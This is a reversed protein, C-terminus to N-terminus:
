KASVDERRTWYFGRYKEKKGSLCKCVSSQNFGDIEVSKLSHYEACEGTLPDIRDILTKKTFDSRRKRAEKSLPSKWSWRKEKKKLKGYEKDGDHRADEAMRRSDSWGVNKLSQSIAERHEQPMSVKSMEERSKELAADRRSKGDESIKYDPNKRGTLTKSIKDKTEQSLSIGKNHSAKGKRGASVKKCFEEDFIRGRNPADAPGIQNYVGGPLNRYFEIWYDERATLIPKHEEITLSGQPLVELPEMQFSEIGHKKVSNMFHANPFTGARMACLYQAKRHLFGTTSGCQGVLVRGTILNTWKYIGCDDTHKPKKNKAM